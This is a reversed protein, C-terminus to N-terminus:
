SNEMNPKEVRLIRPMQMKPRTARISPHVSRANKHPSNMFTNGKAIRIV